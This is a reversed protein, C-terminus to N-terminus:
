ALYTCDGQGNVQAEIYGFVDIPKGYEFFFLEDNTVEAITGACSALESNNDLCIGPENPSYALQVLPRLNSEQTSYYGVSSYLSIQYSLSTTFSAYDFYAYGDTGDLGTANYLAHEFTSLKISGIGVGGEVVVQEHWQQSASASVGLANTLAISIKLDGPVNGVFIDAFGGDNGHFDTVGLSASLSKPGDYGLWSNTGAATVDAGNVSEYFFEGETSSFLGISAISTGAVVPASITAATILSLIRLSIM